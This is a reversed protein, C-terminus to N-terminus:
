CEDPRLLLKQALAPRGKFEPVRGVRADLGEKREVVLVLHVVPLVELSVLLVHHLGLM